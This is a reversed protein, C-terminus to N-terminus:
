VVSEEGITAGGRGAGTRSSPEATDLIEEMLDPDTLLSPPEGFQARWRREIADLRRDRESM